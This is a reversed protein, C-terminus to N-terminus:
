RSLTTNEPSPTEDRHIIEAILERDYKSPNVHKSIRPMQEIYRCIDLDPAVELVIGDEDEVEVQCVGRLGAYLIAAAYVATPSEIGHIKRVLIRTLQTFSCSLCFPIQM